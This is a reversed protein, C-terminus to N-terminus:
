FVYRLGFDFTIYNAKRLGQMLISTLRVQNGPEGDINYDDWYSVFDQISRVEIWSGFYLDLLPCTMGATFLLRQSIPYVRGIQVNFQLNSIGVQNSIVEDYQSVKNKIEFANKSIEAGKIGVPVIKNKFDGYGVQMGIGMYKGIPALSGLRFWRFNFFGQHFHMVKDDLFSRQVAYSVENQYNDTYSEITRLLANHSYLRVPAYSYGVNLEFKRSIVRSYTLNYNTYFYRVKTTVENNEFSLKRQLSPMAQISLELGNKNGLFGPQAFIDLPIIILILLINRM